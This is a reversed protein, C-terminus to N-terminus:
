GSCGYYRQEALCFRGDNDRGEEKLGHLFLCVLVVCRIVMLTVIGIIHMHVFATMLTIGILIMIRSVTLGM